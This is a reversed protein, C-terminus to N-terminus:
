RYLDRRHAINVVLVICVESQLQCLIRYGGIRYRWINKLEGKLQKGWQRPNDTGVIRDALYNIM